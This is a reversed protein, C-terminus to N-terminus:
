EAPEAPTSGQKRRGQKAFRQALRDRGERLGASKKRKILAYVTRAVEYAEAKAQLATDSLKEHFKAVVSTVVDLNRILALRNQLVETTISAPVLDPNRSALELGDIVFTASAPGAKAIRNVEQPSLDITGFPLSSELTAVAQLLSDRENDTLSGTISTDM